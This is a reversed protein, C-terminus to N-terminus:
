TSSNGHSAEYREKYYIKELPRKKPPSPFFKPKGLAVLLCPEIADPLNLFTTLGKAHFSGIACGGLGLDHAALLINQMAAGIDYYRMVNLSGAPNTSQLRSDLCLVIVGTPLGIIGPCITRLVKIRQPDCISIFVWGQSNGGSPASSAAKIITMLDDENLPESTFARISRRTEIAEITQM